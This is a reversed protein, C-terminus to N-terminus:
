NTGAVYSVQIKIWHKKGKYFWRLAFKVWVRGEWELLVLM